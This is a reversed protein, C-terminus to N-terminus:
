SNTSDNTHGHSLNSSIFMKQDVNTRDVEAEYNEDYAVNVFQLCNSGDDYALGDIFNCLEMRKIDYTNSLEWDEKGGDPAIFFSLYGNTESVLIGSVLKGFLEKAKKHALEFKEKSEPYSLGTVIISNHRIYGM